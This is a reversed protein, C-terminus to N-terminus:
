ERDTFGEYNRSCDNPDCLDIVPLHLGIDYVPGVLRDFLRRQMPKSKDRATKAAGDIRYACYLSICHVFRTMSTSHM